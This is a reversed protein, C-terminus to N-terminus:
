KVAIVDKLAVPIGLLPQRTHTAGAALAKDAADAQAPADAADYSIFARISKDVREIQELCAQTASRSSAEGKALKAALESITLTNLM